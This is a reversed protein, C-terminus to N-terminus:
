APPDERVFTASQRRCRPCQLLVGPEIRADVVAVWRHRCPECWAVGVLHPRYEDINHVTATM